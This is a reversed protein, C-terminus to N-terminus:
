RVNALVEAVRLLTQSCGELYASIDGTIPPVHVFLVDTTEDTALLSHWYVFNCLYGGADDSERVGPLALAQTWVDRHALRTEVMEAADISITSGEWVAGDADPTEPNCRNRACRELSMGSRDCAVGTHLILDYAHLDTQRTWQECKQYVVPLTEYTWMGEPRLVDRTYEMLLQSPNVAVGPFSSFSTYLIRM